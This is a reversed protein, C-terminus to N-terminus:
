HACVGHAAIGISFSTFKKALCFIMHEKQLNVSMHTPRLSYSYIKQGTSLIECNKQTSVKVNVFNMTISVSAFNRALPFFDWTKKEFTIAWSIKPPHSFVAFFIWFNINMFQICLSELAFVLFSEPGICCNM